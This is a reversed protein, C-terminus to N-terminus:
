KSPNPLEKRSDWSIQKSKSKSYGMYRRWGEIINGVVCIKSMNGTKKYKNRQLKNFLYTELDGSQLDLGLLVKDLYEEADSECHTTSFLWYCFAAIQKSVVQNKPYKEIYTTIIPNDQAYALVESTTITNVGGVKITKADPNGSQGYSIVSRILASLDNSQKFGCMDLVDATTRPKINNTRDFSAPDVGFSVATTIPMDSQICGFLRHQGDQLKGNWNFIIPEGTIKWNSVIDKAYKTVLTPSVKRNKEIHYYKLIHRAQAPYITQVCSSYIKTKKPVYKITKGDLLKEVITKKSTTKPALKLTTQQSM